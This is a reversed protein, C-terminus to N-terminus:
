NKNEIEKLKKELVEKKNKLEKEMKEFLEKFKIKHKYIKLAPAVM